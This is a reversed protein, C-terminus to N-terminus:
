EDKITVYTYGITQLQEVLTDELAQESQRTM